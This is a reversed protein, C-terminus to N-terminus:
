AEGKEIKNALEQILAIDAQTMDLATPVDYVDTIVNWAGNLKNEYLQEEVFERYNFEILLQGIQVNSTISMELLEEIDELAEIQEKLEKQVELRRIVDSVDFCDLFYCHMDSLDMIAEVYAKKNSITFSLEM